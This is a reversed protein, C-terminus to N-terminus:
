LMMESTAGPIFGKNKNVNIIACKRVDVDFYVNLEGEVGM